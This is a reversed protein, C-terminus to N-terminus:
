VYNVGEACLWLGIDKVFGGRIFVWRIFGRSIGM